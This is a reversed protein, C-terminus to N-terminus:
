EMISNFAGLLTAVAAADFTAGLAQEYARVNARAAEAPACAAGLSAAPWLAFLTEQQLRESELEVAKVRKRLEEIGTAEFGAPLDKLYRRV